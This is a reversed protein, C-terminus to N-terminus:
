RCSLDGAFNLHIQRPASAGTGTAGRSRYATAAIDALLRPIWLKKPFHLDHPDRWYLTKFKAM